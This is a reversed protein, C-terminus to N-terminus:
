SLLGARQLEVVWEDVEEQRVRNPAKLDKDRIRLWQELDYNERDAIWKVALQMAHPATAFVTSHCAHCLLLFNCQDGWSHSAHSRREIEHVSLPLWSPLAGCYM